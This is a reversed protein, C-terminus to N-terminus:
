PTGPSGLAACLQAAESTAGNFYDLLAFHGNQSIVNEQADFVARGTDLLLVGNGPLTIKFPGTQQTTVADFNGPITFTDILDTIATLKATLGTVPNIITGEGRQYRFRRTLNGATDYYRTARVTNTASMLLEVPNQATGCTIGSPEQDLTEVLQGRCIAGSGSAKCTYYSPVPPNLTPLVPPGALAAVALLSGIGFFVYSIHKTKM